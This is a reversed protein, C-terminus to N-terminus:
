AGPFEAENMYFVEWTHGDPDEFSRQYMFGYDRAEGAEKGGAALAKDMTADVEARGGTSLAILTQLEKNADAVAKRTFEQFYPRALLMVFITDSIVVCAGKEDSFKPNLTHGLATYFAKSKELDAVPLNVFIQTPM